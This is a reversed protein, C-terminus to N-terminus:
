IDLFYTRIVGQTAWCATAGNTGSIRVLWIIGGTVDAETSPNTSSKYYQYLDLDILNGSNWILGTEFRKQDVVGMFTTKGTSDNTFYPTPINWEKLIVFRDQNSINESTWSGGDLTGTQTIGRWIDTFAPIGSNPQRDYVIAVRVQDSIATLSSAGSQRLLLKVDIELIQTKNGVRNYRQTGLQTLGIPNFFATNAFTTAPLVNSVSKVSSKEEQTLYRGTFAMRSTLKKSAVSFFRISPHLFRGFFSFDIQSKLSKPSFFINKKETPKECLPAHTGNRTWKVFNSWDKTLTLSTQLKKWM